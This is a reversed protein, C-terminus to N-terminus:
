NNQEELLRRVAENLDDIGQSEAWSMVDKVVVRGLELETRPNKRRYGASRFAAWITKRGEKSLYDHFWQNLKEPDDLKLADRLDQEADEKASASNLLTILTGDVLKKSFYTKLFAVHGLEVRKQKGM